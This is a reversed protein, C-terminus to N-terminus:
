GGSQASSAEKSYTSLCVMATVNTGKELCSIIVHDVHIRAINYREKDININKRLGRAM